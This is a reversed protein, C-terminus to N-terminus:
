EIEFRQLEVPLPASEFTATDPITIELDDLWVTDGASSYTRAELVFGTHGDAVTWTYSAQDWGTGPGYDSSGGASGDYDTLLAGDNWHGWIRVSPAAAPTDDYRWFSATIQDGDALGTVWVLYAQPTGSAAADELKLSRLGSHVPDPAGVNTSIIQGDPYEDLVTSTGDEWGATQTLQAAAPLAALTLVLVCFILSRM